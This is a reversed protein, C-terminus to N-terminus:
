YPIDFQRAQTRELTKNKEGMEKRSLVRLSWSLTTQMYEVRIEFLLFINLLDNAFFYLHFKLRYLCKKM